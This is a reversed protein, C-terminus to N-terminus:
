KFSPRASLRIPLCLPVRPKSSIKKNIEEILEELKKSVIGEGRIRVSLEGTSVEKEGLVVIYPIWETEADRIKKAVSENRDDVDARINNENIKLAIEIAKDLYNMNVPIIRVQIPSLWLPLKPVKNNEMDKAAQELIVGIWREISGMSSHLIICGKKEGNEDVYYIGYRAADEVDLQLTALQINGGTSDIAQYEHKLIWYHKMEPLIEILAPKNAIKLLSVIWEKNKLYFEKVVRFAIAYEIEMSNTFETYKEFLLKYELLGEELNKCFCHIDPMTFARLRKLGVCEGSQELRFSPSLEYVRIPLQKYSMIADKMMRFLGFDGAFRLIFEKNDVKLRYDKEKFRSAQEAIDPEDLKYIMPTEIRMAKLEKIAFNNAFEELATKIIMGKPYFRFHGVDSAPEYDILELKKMIKIHAPAQHKEKIGAENKILKILTPDIDLNLFTNPNSLDIPIEKGDPTLILFSSPIHKEEKKKEEKPVITRSLESLPHGKCKLTFTKYWGFPALKVEIIKELEEKLKHLIKIANKPSALDSSLHAYPYVVVRNAKVMKVHEIIAETALKVIEEPNEEDIKEITCFAVLCEDVREYKGINEIKEPEKIAPQLPAYEIYDAHILLLRM